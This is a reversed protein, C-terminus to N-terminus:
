RSPFRFDYSVSANRYSNGPSFDGLCIQAAAGNDEQFDNYFMMTESYFASCEAISVAANQFLRNEPAFVCVFVVAKISSFM